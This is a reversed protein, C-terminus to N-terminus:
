DVVKTAYAKRLVDPMEFWIWQSHESILQGDSGTIKTRALYARKNKIGEFKPSRAHLEGKENLASAVVFPSNADNPNEFEVLLTAGPPLAKRPVLSLAFSSTPADRAVMVM